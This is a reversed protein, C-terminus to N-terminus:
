PPAAKTTQRRGRQLATLAEDCGRSARVALSKRGKSSVAPRRHKALPQSHPPQSIHLYFNPFHQPIKHARSQSIQSRPPIKESLPQERSRLFLFFLSLAGGRGEGLPPHRRSSPFLLSKRTTVPLFLIILTNSFWVTPVFGNCHQPKASIDYATKFDNNTEKIVFNIIIKASSLSCGAIQFYIKM